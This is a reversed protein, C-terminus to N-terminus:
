AFLSFYTLRIRKLKSSCRVGRLYWFSSSSCTFSRPQEVAMSNRQNLSASSQTAKESSSRHAHVMPIASTCNSFSVYADRSAYIAVTQIFWCRHYRVTIIIGQECDRSCNQRRGLRQHKPAAKSDLSTQLAMPFFGMLPLFSYHDALFLKYTAIM